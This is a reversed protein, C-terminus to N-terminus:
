HGFGPLGIGLQDLEMLLIAEDHHDLFQEGQCVMLAVEHARKLEERRKRQKAFFIRKLINM